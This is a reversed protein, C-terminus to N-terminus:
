DFRNVLIDLTLFTIIRFLENEKKKEIVSGLIDIQFLILESFINM